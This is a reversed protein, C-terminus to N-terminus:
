GRAEIISSQSARLFYTKRGKSVGALAWGNISCQTDIHKEVARFDRRAIEARYYDDLWPCSSYHMELGFVMLSLPVCLFAYTISLLKSRGLRWRKRCCAATQLLVASSLMLTTLVAAFFQGTLRMESFTYPVDAPSHVRRYYWKDVTLLLSLRSSNRAHYQGLGTFILLDALLLLVKFLSRHIFLPITLSHPQVM